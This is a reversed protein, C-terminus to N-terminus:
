VLHGRSQLESTQAESRGGLGCCARTSNQFNTPCCHDYSYLSSEFQVGFLEMIQYMGEEDLENVLPEYNWSGLGHETFTLGSVFQRFGKETLAHLPSNENKM